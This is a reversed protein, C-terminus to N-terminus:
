KKEFSTVSFLVSVPKRGISILAELPEAPKDLLTTRPIIYAKAAAKKSLSSSCVVTNTCM